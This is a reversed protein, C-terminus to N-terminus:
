HPAQALPVRLTIPGAPLPEDFEYVMIGSPEQWYHKAAWSKKGMVADLSPSAKDPEKVPASAAAGLCNTAVGVLLVSALVVRVWMM